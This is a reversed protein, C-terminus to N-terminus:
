KGLLDKSVCPNCGCLNTNVIRNSPKEKIKDWFSYACCVATSIFGNQKTIYEQWFLRCITQRTSSQLPIPFISIPSDTRSVQLWAGGNKEWYKLVKSRLKEGVRILHAM